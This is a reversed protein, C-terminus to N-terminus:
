GSIGHSGRGKRCRLCCRQQPSRGAAQLPPYKCTASCRCICWLTIDAAKPRSKKKQSCTINSNNNSNLNHKKTLSYESSRQHTLMNTQITTRTQNASKTLSYDSSRQHTLMNTQITTKTQNASKTLSYDSSKQRRLMNYKFQLELKIQAMTHTSLGNLSPSM